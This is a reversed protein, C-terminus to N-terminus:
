IVSFDLGPKQLKNGRSHLAPDVADAGLCRENLGATRPLVAVHFAEVALQAVLQEVGLNEVREGFGLHQDLWPPHVVVSYAWVRAQSIPWGCWFHNHQSHRHQRTM